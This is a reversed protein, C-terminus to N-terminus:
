YPLDHCSALKNYHSLGLKIASKFILCHNTDTKCPFRIDVTSLIFLLVSPYIDAMGASNTSTGRSFFGWREYWNVVKRKKKTATLSREELATRVTQILQVFGSSKRGKFIWTQSLQKTRRNWPVLNEMFDQVMNLLICYSM